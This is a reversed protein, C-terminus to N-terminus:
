PLLPVVQDAALALIAQGVGGAVTQIGRDALLFELGQAQREAQPQADAGDDGDDEGDLHAQREGEIVVAIEAGEGERGIQLHQQALRFQVLGPHM